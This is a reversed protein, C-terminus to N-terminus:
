DSPTVTDGIRITGRELHILNQGFSVGEGTRRYRALTRLPEDGRELTIQDTTTVTCRVCPKVGAFKVSGIQLNRWHDEAYPEAGSVVINPRFRNMPLPTSLRSNLDNLSAESIVLCPYGDPFNVQDEPSRAFAPNVPRKFGPAMAVLRSPTGLYTSMWEAIADGQEVAQCTSRWIQVQLPKGDPIIDISLTEMDPASVTLRDGDIQPQLLAMKPYERQTFFMGEPDTVLLRRDNAIGCADLEAEQVSTSGCSKIPYYTLASVQM